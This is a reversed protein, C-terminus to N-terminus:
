SIQALSTFVYEKSGITQFSFAHSWPECTHTTTLVFISSVSRVPLATAIDTSLLSTSADLMSVKAFAEAVALASISGGMLALQQQAAATATAHLAVVQAQTSDQAQVQQYVSKADKAVLAAEAL